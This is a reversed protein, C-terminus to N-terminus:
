IEDSLEFALEYDDDHDAALEPEAQPKPTEEEEDIGGHLGEAHSQIVM